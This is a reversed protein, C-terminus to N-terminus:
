RKRKPLPPPPPLSGRPRTLLKELLRQSERTLDRFVVGMGSRTQRVVEGVGEITELDDLIVTFKLNVVTGLPLPDHSRIFAGSSSVNTVYEHIFEDVNAFEKNITVREARPTKKEAPKRTPKAAPM